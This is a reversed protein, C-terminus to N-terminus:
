DPAPSVFGLSKHHCIMWITVVLFWTGAFPGADVLGAAGPNAPWTYINFALGLCGILMGAGGIVRGFRPNRLMAFGLLTMGAFVFMDWALDAGSQATNEARYALNWAGWLSNSEAAPQAAGRSYRLVGQMTGMLTVMGGAIILFLVGLQLSM